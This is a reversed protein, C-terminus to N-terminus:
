ISVISFTSLSRSLRFPTKMWSGAPLIALRWSAFPARCICAKKRGSSRCDRCARLSSRGRVTAISSALWGTNGTDISTAMSRRPRGCSRVDLPRRATGRDFRASFPHHPRDLEGVAWGLERPPGPLRLEMGGRPKSLKRGQPPAGRSRGPFEAPRGQLRVRESARRPPSRFREAAQHFSGAFVFADELRLCTIATPLDVPYDAWSWAGDEDRYDDVALVIARFRSSDPDLERLLYYWSRPTSGSIAANVFTLQAVGHSTRSKPRSDRASARTAWSLSPAVASRRAHDKQEDM